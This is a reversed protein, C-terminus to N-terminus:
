AKAEEANPKMSAFLEAASIKEVSSLSDVKKGFAFWRVVSGDERTLLEGNRGRDSTYIDYNDVLERIQGIATDETLTVSAGVAIVLRLPKGDSGTQKSEISLRKKGESDTTLYFNTAEIERMIDVIDVTQLSSSGILHQKFDIKAVSM